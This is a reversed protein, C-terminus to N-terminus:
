HNFVFEKTNLLAWLADEIGSRLNTGEENFLEQLVEVERATPLRCLVALYLEDIIAPVPKKSEALARVKGKRSHIKAVIEPANMLHLAQAISPENSRECECVSARVPRGFLKLFYSPMRNDWVQIARAGEPWGNFKEPVGTIQSLADLLVEAPMARNITHSFNQEDNANLTTESGLQYTRSNLITKTYAKLDYKNKKLHLALEELLPENSAPNTVRFDDIPEVLGKGLYHAWIRNAIARSLFANDPKIVWNAFLSRRDTVETSDSEKEGLARTPVLKNTRPNKVDNGSKGVVSETGNPLVKKAVGTFFGALAFYDDQTWKESPHHHCQACEIRVGLFLQSVSRSIIEPTTLAKYFATPSESATSGEALIIEKVMEDYPRNEAFQRRLWRTMAIAGQATIADRDVRLLDSWQMAWFDAYEPRELLQDILKARKDAAKSEIFKRAEEATPLTGITDLYVRRMFTSDNCLESPAIGLKELKNWVHQDIFNNELPRKFAVGKKPITIRCVNVEGMYRVLIAAEGPYEGAQIAGKRDVGAITPANSEYEAESTVCYREGRSNIATVRLQQTTKPDLLNQTPEVELAIVPSIAETKFHMGESIWRVLRKYPLTGETIKKGGGHPIRASAKAVLLSSEPSAAFVRRGRGEMILSQYDAFPDFGFVSLKFGNQGEAKGHCGGSNCGAKTLLPIIQNEFSVPSPNKLGIVKVKVSTKMGEHLASIITEGEAIPEILGFEDVKIIKPGSIEYKTQLTIDKLNSKGEMLKVLLQQTSEPGSLTVQEPSIQIDASVTSNSFLFYFLTPLVFSIIKIFSVSNIKLYSNLDTKSKRVFYIKEQHDNTFNKLFMILGLNPTNIRLAYCQCAM